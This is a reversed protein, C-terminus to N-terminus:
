RMGKGVYRSGILLEVGDIVTEAGLLAHYYFGYCRYKERVLLGSDVDRYRREEIGEGRKVNGEAWTGLERYLERGENGHLLRLGSLASSRLKGELFWGRLIFRLLSKVDSSGLWIPRTLFSVEVKAEDDYEDERYVRGDSGVQFVRPYCGKATVGYVRDISHYLSGAFGFVLSRGGESLGLVLENSRPVYTASVVRGNVGLPEYDVGGDVGGYVEDIVGSICTCEYQNLLMVGKRSVYVVGMPTQCIVDSVPCEISVPRAMSGHVVDNEVDGGGLVWVGDTTFVYVPFNGFNRDTVNMVMACEGLVRGGGLTYRRDGGFRFPNDVDSVFVRNRWEVVARGAM